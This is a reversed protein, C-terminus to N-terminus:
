VTWAKVQGTERLESEFRLVGDREWCGEPANVLRLYIKSMLPTVADSEPSTVAEIVERDIQRFNKRYEGPGLSTRRVFRPASTARSNMALDRYVFPKVGRAPEHLISKPNYVCWCRSATLALKLNPSPAGHLRCVKPAGRAEHKLRGSGGVASLGIM